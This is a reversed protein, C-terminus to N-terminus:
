TSRSRDSRGYQSAIAEQAGSLRVALKRMASARPEGDYGCDRWADDIRYIEKAEAITM